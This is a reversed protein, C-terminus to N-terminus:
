LLMSKLAYQAPTILLLFKLLALASLALVSFRAVALAMAKLSLYKGNGKQNLNHTPKFCLKVRGPLFVISNIRGTSKSRIAQKRFICRFMSVRGASHRIASQQRTNM